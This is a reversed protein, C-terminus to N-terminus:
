LKHVHLKRMTNLKIRSILLYHDSAIDAGRYSRVDLLTQRWRSSVAIHDIQNATRHDPSRWTAKHIDKHPFLTGGIVMEHSSCLDILRDGNDNKMGLGHKGIVHELNTNHCGVKSNFDGLLFIIDGRKIKDLTARLVDYFTDKDEVAAVETPAYCQIISVKKHQTQIRVTIIRDNIPKWDIISNRIQKSVLIGVGSEHKESQNKGSYLFIDGNGTVHEGTGKWRTESLGLIHIKYRGMERSVQALRSPETM